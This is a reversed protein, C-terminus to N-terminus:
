KETKAFTNTKSIVTLGDSTFYKSNNGVYILKFYTIPENTSKGSFYYGIKGTFPVGTAKTTGIPHYDNGNTSYYIIFSGDEKLLEVAWQLYVIGSIEQGTFSTIRAITDKILFVSEDENEVMVEISASPQGSTKPILVLNLLFFCICFPTTIKKTRM